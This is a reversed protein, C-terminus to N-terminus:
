TLREALFRLQPAAVARWYATDHCGPSIGGAVGPVLDLYDRSAGAFPDNAGCDVRVPVGPDPRALLDGWRTFDGASDFAGRTADGFTRFLAPSMAAAAVLRIGPPLAQEGALRALLLAGYGGMSWGLVAMPDTRLGEDRLRPLFEGSLMRLPDDGSARPHWYGDGGDVSALAFPTGGSAVYAGLLADLHLADAFAAHGAGRGHLVLAVPLPGTAGDPRVVTYGVARGRAASAFSSAQRTGRPADRPWDGPVDCRGLARDLTAGGPLVGAEVLGLAAGGGAVAVAAGALFRRRTIAVAATERM